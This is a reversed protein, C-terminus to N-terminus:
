KTTAAPAQRSNLLLPPKLPPRPFSLVAANPLEELSLYVLIATSCQCFSFEFRRLM